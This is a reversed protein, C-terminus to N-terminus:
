EELEFEFTYHQGEEDSVDLIDPSTFGADTLAKKIRKKVSSGNRGHPLFYHLQLLYRGCDETDDGFVAGLENYNWTCYEDSKGRYLHPSCEPVIPKVANRLREDVTM